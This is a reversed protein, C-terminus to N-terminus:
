PLIVRYYRNANTLAQPESFQILGYPAFNTSVTVWSALDGSAQVFYVQNSQGEIRLQLTGNVQQLASAIFRLPVA